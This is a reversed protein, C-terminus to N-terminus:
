QALQPFISCFSIHKTITFIRSKGIMDPRAIRYATNIKLLTLILIMFRHKSVFEIGRVNARGAHYVIINYSFRREIKTRIKMLM